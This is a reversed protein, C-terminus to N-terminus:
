ILLIINKIIKVVFREKNKVQFIQNNVMLFFIHLNPSCKWELGFLSYNIKLCYILKCTCCGIRNQNWKFKSRHSFLRLSRHVFLFYIIGKLVDQM